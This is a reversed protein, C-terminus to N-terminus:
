HPDDACSLKRPATETVSFPSGRCFIRQVGTWPGEEKRKGDENVGKDTYPYLPVKDGSDEMRMRERVCGRMRERERARGSEREREM